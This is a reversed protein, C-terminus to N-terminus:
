AFQLWMASGAGSVHACSFYIGGFCHVSCAHTDMAAHDLRPLGMISFPFLHPPLTPHCKVQPLTKPPDLPARRGFDAHQVKGYVGHQAPTYQFRRSNLSTRVICKHMHRFAQFNNGTAASM